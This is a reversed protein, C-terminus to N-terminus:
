SLRARAYAAIANNQYAALGKAVKEFMARIENDEVCMRGVLTFMAADSAGYRKASRYFWDIEEQVAPDNAPTDAVMLEALRVMRNTMEKGEVTLQESWQERAETDDMAQAEYASSAFDEFVNGQRNIKPYEM